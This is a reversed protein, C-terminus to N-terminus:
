SNNLVGSQMALDCRGKRLRVQSAWARNQKGEPRERALSFVEVMAVTTYTCVFACESADRWM